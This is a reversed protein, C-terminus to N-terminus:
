RLHDLHPSADAVHPDVEAPPPSALKHCLAFVYFENRSCCLANRRDWGCLESVM